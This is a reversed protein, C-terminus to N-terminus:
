LYRYTYVASLGRDSESVTPCNGTHTTHQSKYISERLCTASALLHPLVQAEWYWWCGQAVGQEELGKGQPHVGEGTGGAIEHVFNLQIMM